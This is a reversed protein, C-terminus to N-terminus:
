VCFFVCLVKVTRPKKIARKWLDLSALKSRGKVLDLSPGIEELEVRPTKTGSKKLLVRFIFYFQSISTRSPTPHLSPITSRHFPHLSPQPLFWPNISISPITQTIYPLSTKQFPPNKSPLIKPLSIKPLSSNLFLPILSFDHITPHFPPIMSQLSPHLLFPELFQHM